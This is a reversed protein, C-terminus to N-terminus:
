LIAEVVSFLAWTLLFFMMFTALMDGAFRLYPNTM